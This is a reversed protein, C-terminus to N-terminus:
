GFAEKVKALLQPIDLRQPCRRACEGCGLCDIYGLKEYIYEMKWKEGPWRCYDNYLAFYGPIDQNKPCHPTCYRCSTCEVVTDSRIAEAAKELAELEAANLPEAPAMNAEIQDLCNMGSLVTEVGELSQAFRIAWDPASWDPHLANLVAKAKDPIRALGGGKVPEMVIIPKSYKRALEYCEKAKITPSLWDLYNIQLQVFELEPHSSLIQELVQPDDHFSFGVRKALGLEKLGRVFDFVGFKECIGVNEADMGHLLYLDFYEVGCRDLQEDFIRQCDAESGICWPPLKDAIRFSAREHCRVVAERIAVESMGGLYTYATDFYDGGKEMFADALASVAPIDVKKEDTMPLRLFGFGLKNM